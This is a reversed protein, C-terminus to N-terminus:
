RLPPLHRALIAQTRRLVVRQVKRALEAARDSGLKQNEPTADREQARAIPDAYLRKQLRVYLLMHHHHLAHLPLSRSPLHPSSPAGGSESNSVFAAAAGLLGPAVFSLLAYYEQLNNQVPTGSCCCSKFLLPKLNLL